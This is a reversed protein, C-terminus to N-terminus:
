LAWGVDGGAGSSRLLWASEGSPEFAAVFVDPDTANSTGSPIGFSSMGTGSMTAPGAISGSIVAKGAKTFTASLAVDRWSTGGLRRYWVAQGSANSLLAFADSDGLVEIVEGGVTVAGSSGVLLVNGFEDVAVDSATVGSPGSVPTSTW